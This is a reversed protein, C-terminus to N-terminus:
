IIEPPFMFFYRMFVCLKISIQDTMYYLFTDDQCILTFHSVFYKCVYTTVNQLIKLLIM